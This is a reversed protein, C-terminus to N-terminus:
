NIFIEGLLNTEPKIDHFAFTLVDTARDVNRYSSNIEKMHKNNTITVDFLLDNKLKLLSVTKKCISKFLHEIRVKHDIDVNKYVVAFSLTVM